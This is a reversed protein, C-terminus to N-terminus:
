RERLGLAREEVLIRKRLLWAFGLVAIVGSV